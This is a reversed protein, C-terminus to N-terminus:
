FKEFVREAVIQGSMRGVTHTIPSLKYFSVHVANLLKLLKIVVTELIKTVDDTQCNSQRMSQLIESCLQMRSRLKEVEGGQYSDVLKVEMTSQTM